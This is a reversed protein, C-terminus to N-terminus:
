LGSTFVIANSQLLTYISSSIAIFRYFVESIVEEIRQSREPTTVKKDMRVLSQFILYEKVTLMPVFLSGQQVFGSLSKITDIKSPSDNILVSGEIKYESLNRGTLM